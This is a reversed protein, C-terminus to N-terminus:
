KYRGRYNFPLGEWLRWKHARIKTSRARKTHTWALASEARAGPGSGNKAAFLLFFGRVRALLLCCLCCFGSHMVHPGAQVVGSRPNATSSAPRGASHAHTASRIPMRRGAHGGIERRELSSNPDRRFFFFFDPNGEHIAPFRIWPRRHDPGTVAVVQMAGGRVRKQKEELRSSDAVAELATPRGDEAPEAGLVDAGPKLNIRGGRLATLVLRRRNGGVQISGCVAGRAL